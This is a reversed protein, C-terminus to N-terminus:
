KWILFHSCSVLLRSHVKIWDCTEIYRVLMCGVTPSPSPCAVVNCYKETGVAGMRGVQVKGEM